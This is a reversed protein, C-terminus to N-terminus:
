TEHRKARQVTRQRQDQSWLGLESELTVKPHSWLDDKGSDHEEDHEAGESCMTAQIAVHAFNVKGVADPRHKM